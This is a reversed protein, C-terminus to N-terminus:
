VCDIPARVRMTAIKRWEDRGGEMWGDMRERGRDEVAGEGREERGYTRTGSGTVSGGSAPKELRDNSKGDFLRETHTSEVSISISYRQQERGRGGAGTCRQCCGGGERQGRRRRRGWVCETEIPESDRQCISSRRESSGYTETHEDALITNQKRTRTKDENLPGAKKRDDPPGNEHGREFEL